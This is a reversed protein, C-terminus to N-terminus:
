EDIGALRVVEKIYYNFNPNSVQPMQMNYKDILIKKADNRQNNWPFSCLNGGTLAAM